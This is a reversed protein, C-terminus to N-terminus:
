GCIVVFAKSTSLATTPLRMRTVFKAGIAELLVEVIQITFKHDMQEEETSIM